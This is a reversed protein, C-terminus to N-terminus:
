KAPTPPPCTPCWRADTALRRMIFTSSTSVWKARSAAPASPGSARRQGHHCRTPKGYAHRLAPSRVSEPQTESRDTLGHRTAFVAAQLGFPRGDEAQPEEQAHQNLRDAWVPFVELDSCASPVAPQLSFATNLPHSALRANHSSRRPSRIIPFSVNCTLCQRESDSPM